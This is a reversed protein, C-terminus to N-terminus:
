YVQMLHQIMRNAQTGYAGGFLNFHNLIHYLNYLTERHGAGLPLIEGYGQYFEPPFGGFLKTMALDVERDGVYTAPDFIVPIGEQTIGGNGGWLDGHVLSPQPDHDELCRHVIAIVQEVSPFSGGKKKALKLQHAIRYEAFFETWNSTWPNIQPTSGITNEREWGFAMPMGLNEIPYQHLYALNRGMQRWAGTGGLDLWEMVLYAKDGSQGTCIPQPVRITKTSHIQQLGLMEAQFMELGRAQNIKVFYKGLNTELLYGQNICGGGFSQAQLFEVKEQLTQAINQTIDTWM